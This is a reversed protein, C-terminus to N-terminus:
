IRVDVQHDPEPQPSANELIKNPIRIVEEGTSKDKIYVYMKGNEIDREFTLTTRRALGAAQARELIAAPYISEQTPEVPLGEGPQEPLPRVPVSRNEARQAVSRNPSAGVPSPLGEAAAGALLSITGAM